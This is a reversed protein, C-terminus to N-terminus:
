SSAFGSVSFALGFPVQNRIPRPLQLVASTAINSRERRSSNSAKSASASEAKKANVYPPQTALSIPNIRIGSTRSVGSNRFGFWGGPSSAPNQSPAAPKTFM